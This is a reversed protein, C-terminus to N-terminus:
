SQLIFSPELFRHSIKNILHDFLFEEGNDKQRLM